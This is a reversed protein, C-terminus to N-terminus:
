NIEDRFYTKEAIEFVFPIYHFYDPCEVCDARLVTAVHIDVGRSEFDNPDSMRHMMDDVGRASEKSPHQESDGESEMSDARIDSAPM